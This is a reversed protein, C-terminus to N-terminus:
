KVLDLSAEWDDGGMTECARTSTKQLTREAMAEQQKTTFIIGYKMMSSVKGAFEEQEWTLINQPIAFAVATTMLTYATEM